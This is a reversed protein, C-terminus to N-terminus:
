DKLRKLNKVIYKETPLLSQQIRKAYHISDLIEKQKKEVIKNKEEIIKKQRSTVRFRNLLFASFIVLLVFGALVSILISNKKKDELVALAHEKEQAAKM